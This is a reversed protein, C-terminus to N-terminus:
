GFGFEEMDRSYLCKLIDISELDSYASRKASPDSMNMHPLGALLPYDKRLKEWETGLKNFKLLRLTHGCDAWPDFLTSQPAAHHDDPWGDALREVFDRFGMGPHIGIAALGPSFRRPQDRVGNVWLSIARDVPHRVSAVAVYDDPVEEWTLLLGKGRASGTLGLTAMCATKMSTFGAKPTCHIALKHSPFIFVLRRNEASVNM